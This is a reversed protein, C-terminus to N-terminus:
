SLKGLPRAVSVLEAPRTGTPTISCPHHDMDEHDGSILAAISRCGLATASQSGDDPVDGTSDHRSSSHPPPSKGQQKNLTVYSLRFYPCRTTSSLRFLM